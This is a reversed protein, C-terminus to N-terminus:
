MTEGDVPIADMIRKRAQEPDVDTVPTQPTIVVNQEDRYGHNNKLLFIAAVTNIKGNNMMQVLMAENVERGRRIVDRVEQPKKYEGVEWKWLTTRDIGLALALGTVDPKVDNEICYLHYEDIRKAVQEADNTDIKPLHSIAMTHRLMKSIEGPETHPLYLETRGPRKHKQKVAETVATKVDKAEGGTASGDQNANQARKERAERNAKARENRDTLYEKKVERM